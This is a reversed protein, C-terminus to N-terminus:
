EGRPAGHRMVIGEIEQARHSLLFRLAAEMIQIEKRNISKATRKLGLLVDRSVRISKPEKVAASPKM